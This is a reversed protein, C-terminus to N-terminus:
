LFYYWSLILELQNTKAITPFTIRSALQFRSVTNPDDTDALWLGAENINEGNASNRDITTTSKFILYENNNNSDQLVELSDFKRKKGNDATLPDSANMVIETGLTTDTLDPTYPTLPDAPDAGGTGISVWSLFLDKDGSGGIRDINFLIQGFIIRGAYVILNDKSFLKNGFQDTIEVAGKLGAGGINDHTRKRLSYDILNILKKNSV